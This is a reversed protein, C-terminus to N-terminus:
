DKGITLSDGVLGRVRQLARLSRTRVAGPSVGMRDAVEDVSLDELYRLVLVVRDPPSLEALLQFLALRIDARVAPDPMTQDPVDAYPQEGSSRRRKGGLFTRTLTTQAYAAPNDIRSYPRRWRAYVKALTEQVLDEAQHHSGCLLWASRYLQAARAHAFEEFERQHSTAGTIPM